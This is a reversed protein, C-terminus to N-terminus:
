IHGEHDDTAFVQVPDGQLLWENEKDLEYQIERAPDTAANLNGSTAVELIQQPTADGYQMLSTAMGLKGQPTNLAPNGVDVVVEDFDKLADALVITQARLHFSTVYFHFGRLGSSRPNRM